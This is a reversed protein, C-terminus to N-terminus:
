SLSDTFIVMVTRKRLDDNFGRQLRGSGAADRALELALVGIV